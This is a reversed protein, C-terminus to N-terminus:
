NVYQKACQLYTSHNSPLKFHQAAITAIQPNIEVTNFTTITNIYPTNNQLYYMIREFGATGLGLNLINLTDAAKLLFLLMCQNVAITLQEPHTRNMVGQIVIDEDTNQALTLWRYADNQYVCVPGYPSQQLTILNSKVTEKKLHRM